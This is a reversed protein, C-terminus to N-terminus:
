WLSTMKRCKFFCQIMHLIEPMEMKLAMTNFLLLLACFLDVMEVRLDFLDM